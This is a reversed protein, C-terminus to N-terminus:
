RGGGFPTRRRGTTSKSAKAAAVIDATKAGKDLGHAEAIEGIADQDEKSSKAAAVIDAPKADKKLGVAEAVEGLQDTAAKKVNDIEALIRNQRDTNSDGGVKGISLKRELATLVNDVEASADAAVPLKTVPDLTIEGREVAQILRRHEPKVIDGQPAGGNIPPTQQGSNVATVVNQAWDGLDKLFAPSLKGDEVCQSLVAIGAVASDLADDKTKTNIETGRARVLDRLTSTSDTDSM